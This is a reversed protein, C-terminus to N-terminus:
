YLVQVFQDKILSSFYFAGRSYDFERHDVFYHRTSSFVMMRQFTTIVVIDYLYIDGSIYLILPELNRKRSTLSATASWWYDPRPISYHVKFLRPV